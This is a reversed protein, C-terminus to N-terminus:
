TTSAWKTSIWFDPIGCYTPIQKVTQAVLLKLFATEHFWNTLVDTLLCVVACRLSQPASLWLNRRLLHCLGVDIETCTRLFCGSYLARKRERERCVETQLKKADFSTRFATTPMAVWNSGESTLRFQPTVDCRSRFVNTTQSIVCHLNSFCLAIHHVNSDGREPHM